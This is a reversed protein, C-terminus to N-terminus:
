YLGYYPSGNPHNPVGTQSQVPAVPAPQPAGVPQSQMGGGVGGGAAPNFRQYRRMFEMFQEPSVLGRQMRMQMEQLRQPTFQHGPIDQRPNSPQGMPPPPLMRDGDPNYEVLPMSIGGLAERADLDSQSPVSRALTPEYVKGGDLGAFGGSPSLNGRANALDMGPKVTPSPLQNVPVPMTGSQGPLQVRSPRRNGSLWAAMNFAGGSQSGGFAPQQAEPLSAVQPVPPTPIAKIPPTKPKNTNSATPM